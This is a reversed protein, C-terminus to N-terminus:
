EYESLTISIAQKWMQITLFVHLICQIIDFLPIRLIYFKGAYLHSTETFIEIFVPFIPFKVM